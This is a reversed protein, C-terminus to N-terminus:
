SSLRGRPMGPLLDGAESIQIGSSSIDKQTPVHLLFSSSGAAHCQPYRNPIAPFPTILPPIM